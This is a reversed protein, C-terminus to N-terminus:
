LVVIIKGEARDEEMWKQAEVVSELGKFVKGVKIRLEGAAVDRILADFPTKQFERSNSKFSTYYVENQIAMMGSFPGEFVFNNGVMGIECAIGGARVRNLSDKMTAVGVLDLVTSFRTTDQGLQAAINGDDLIVEDAGNDLLMQKREAKRTTAAVFAGHRKAVAAGALGISTMGGRILLRDGKELRLSTFLAGWVTLMM